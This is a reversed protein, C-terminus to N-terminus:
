PWTISSSGQIVAEGFKGNMTINAKHGVGVGKQCTIAKNNSGTIQITSEHNDNFQIQIAQNNSGPGINIRAYNNNGNQWQVTQNRSSNITAYAENNNGKQYQSWDKNPLKDFCAKFDNSTGGKSVSHGNRNGTQSIQAWNNDGNQYTEATNDSGYQKQIATNDQGDQQEIYAKNGHHGIQNQTATNKKGKNQLIEANHGNNKVGGQQTQTAKNEEGNHQTISAENGSSNGNNQTIKAENKKAKQDQLITAKGWDGAQTIRAQNRYAKKTDDTNIQQIKASNHNGGDKTTIWAENILYGTGDQDIVLTNYDGKDVIKAINGLSVSSLGLVVTLAIMCYYIKKSM